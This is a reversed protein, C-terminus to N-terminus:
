ADLAGRPVWGRTGEPTHSSAAVEVCAYLRGFWKVAVVDGRDLYWFATSRPAYRLYVDEESVVRRGSAKRGLTFRPKRRRRPAHRVGPASGVEFDESAPGDAWGGPDSVLADSRVWGSRGGQLVYVWAYGNRADRRAPKTLRRPNRVSQRGVRQGADLKDLIRFQQGPGDRLTADRSLRNPYYGINTEYQTWCGSPYRLVGM